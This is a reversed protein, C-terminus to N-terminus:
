GLPPGGPLGPMPGNGGGAGPTVLGSPRQPRFIHEPNPRVQEGDPMIRGIVFQFFYLSHMVKRKEGAVQVEIEERIRMDSINVDFLVEDELMEVGAAGNTLWFPPPNPGPMTITKAGACPLWQTTEVIRVAGQKRPSKKGTGKSTATAQESQKPM